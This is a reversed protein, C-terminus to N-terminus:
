RMVPTIEMLMDVNCDLAIFRRQRLPEPKWNLSPLARHKRTKEESGVALSIVM